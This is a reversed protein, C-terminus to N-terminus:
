IAGVSSLGGHVRRPQAEIAATGWTVNQTKRADTAGTDLGLGGLTTAAAAIFSDVVQEAEECTATCPAAVAFVGAPRRPSFAQRALMRRVTQPTATRRDGVRYWYRVYWRRGDFPRTVVAGNAASRPGAPLPAPRVHWGAAGISSGFGVLKRGPEQTRYEAVYVDVTGAASTYAAYREGDPRNFGAQWQM